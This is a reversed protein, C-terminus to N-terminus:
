IYVKPHLSGEIRSKKAIYVCNLKLPVQSQKRDFDPFKAQQFKQLYRYLQLLYYTLLYCGFLSKLYVRLYPSAIINEQSFLFYM